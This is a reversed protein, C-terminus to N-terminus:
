AGLFVLAPHELHEKLTQVFAAGVHGDIVRHDFSCSLYMMERVVVTDDRVVPRKEIKHIGIIAVEPHNIIPTAFMGGAVGLSTITFTSGTLEEIRAKRERAATALRDVESAIEWLDKKDADHVVVVTLGEDTAVAVGINYYKKVIIEGAAEDLTSNLTPHQKLAAVCAKVIFPLYTLKVGRKQAAEASKQKLHVLSTMDIEEVYTFHAASTKSTHMKELIRKRLGAVAIREEAGGKPVHGAPAVLEVVPRAPVQAPVSVAPIAPRPEQVAPAPQVPAPAPKLVPAAPEFERAQPVKEIVPPPV